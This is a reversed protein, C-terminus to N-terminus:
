RPRCRRIDSGVM